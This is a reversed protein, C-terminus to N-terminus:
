KINKKALNIEKINFVLIASQSTAMATVQKCGLTDAFPLLLVLADWVLLFHERFYTNLCILSPFFMRDVHLSLPSPLPLERTSVALLFYPLRPSLFVPSSLLHISLM